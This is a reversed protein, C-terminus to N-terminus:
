EDLIRSDKKMRQIEHFRSRRARMVLWIRPKKLIQIGPFRREM